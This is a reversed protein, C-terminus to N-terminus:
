PFFTLYLYVFEDQFMRLERSQNNSVFIHSLAINSNLIIHFSLGQRVQKEHCSLCQTLYQSCSKQTTIQNLSLYFCQAWHM